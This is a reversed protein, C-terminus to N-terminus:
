MGLLSQVAAAERAAHEDSQERATSEIPNAPPNQAAIFREVAERSTIWSQGVRVAELKVRGNPTMVGERVWRWITSARVAAHQRLPPFLRAAASLSLLSEQLVRNVLVAASM